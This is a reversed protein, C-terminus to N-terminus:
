EKGLNLLERAHEQAHESESVGSLMRAIETEREEGTVISISSESISGTSDKNVVLHHDAWIAVQPLHTVVIVQSTSALRKLRKGVELAAKGGIGADVEDFLYTGLPSNGAAVVEIALMLRSLEGGSAVKSIPLLEGSQHASFKMTVVDTGHSSFNDKDFDNASDIQCLFRANPMALENLEVNVATSLRAAADIRIESLSGAKEILSRRIKDLDSKLAAVRDEGGSLDAIENKAAKARELARQLQEEIDGEGGHKKAFGKIAGKRELMEDLSLGGGNLEELLIGGENALDSLDFYASEARKLKESFREDKVSLAAFAKRARDIGRLAGYEDSTLAERIESLHIRLDELNELISIKNELDELEGAKPKLKAEDKLLTELEEIKAVRSSESKDLDHLRREIEQFSELAKKYEALAIEAREGGFNDLLDRQRSSKTMTVAGHQGHIEMLEDCLDALKSVTTPVGSISARSKGDRNIIRSLIISDEIDIDQEELLTELQTGPKSPLEFIGTVSLRESGLRILDSDSKEGAVLSLATLVMTKGAGTEGTVVTLGPAFEIAAEEIVGLNRISLEILRSRGFNSNGVGVM